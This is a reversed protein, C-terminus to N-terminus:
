RRGKGFLEILKDSYFKVFKKEDFKIPDVIRVSVRSGPHGVSSPEAKVAVVKAHLEVSEQGSLLLYILLEQRLKLPEDTWFAVGTGSIDLTATTIMKESPPIRFTMPIEIKMRHYRRQETM